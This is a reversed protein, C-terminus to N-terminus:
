IQLGHREIALALLVLAWQRHARRYPSDEATHGEGRRAFERGLDVLAEPRFLRQLPSGPDQLAWRTADDLVPGGFTLLPLAFGKKPRDIVWAPALRRALSKLIAKGEHGALKGERRALKREIPLGAAFWVLRDDLLPPRIELSEAMTMRDVKVLMEEPLVIRQELRHCGEPHTPDLGPPVRETVYRDLGDLPAHWDPRLLARQEDPWFWTLTGIARQAQSRQRLSLVRTARRLLGRVRDDPVHAALSEGARQLVAAVPRPVHLAKDVLLNQTYRPYGAFLEDGGDGSLAVTVHRKVERALRRTPLSSSDAFPDGHHDVLQELEERTLGADPLEIETHDAGLHDAVARAAKREDYAPDRHVIAFTRIRGVKRAAAAAVLTSDVGGSLLVGVPVDAALQDAVSQMLLAELVEDQEHPDTPVDHHPLGIPPMVRKVSLSGQADVHAAEGPQLQRIGRCLTWPAPVFGLALYLSLAEPDLRRDLGPLSYLPKIESSFAVAGGLDAVYLPKIGTRDRALLLTRETVHWHALGFMGHLQPLADEGQRELLELVIETDSHGRPQLDPLTQRLVAADYIEGNYVLVTRGSASTMPQAGAPTLDLIALRTHGLLAGQGRWIASADPGRHFLGRVAGEIWGQGLEVARPGVIGVIGCM